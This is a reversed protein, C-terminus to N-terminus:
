IKLECFYVSYMINDCIVFELLTSQKNGFLFIKFNLIVPKYCTM